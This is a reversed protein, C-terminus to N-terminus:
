AKNSVKNQDIHNKQVHSNINCTILKLSAILGINHNITIYFCQSTSKTNQASGPIDIGSFDEFTYNQYLVLASVDFAQFTWFSEFAILEFM